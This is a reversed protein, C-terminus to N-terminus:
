IQIKLDEILNKPMKPQIFELNLNEGLFGIDDNLYDYQFCTASPFIRKCYNADDELLTSIYCYKLASEPLKFELNGTGAAMDWFRYEGSKWWNRWKPKHKLEIVVM